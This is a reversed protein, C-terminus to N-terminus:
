ICAYSHGPQLIGWWGSACILTSVCPCSVQKIQYQSFAETFQQQMHLWNKFVVEKYTGDLVAQFLSVHCEYNFRSLAEQLNYGDEIALFHAVGGADAHRSYLYAYVEEDM